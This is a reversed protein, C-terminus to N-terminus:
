FFFRTYRPTTDSRLQFILILSCDKMLNLALTFDSNVSQNTTTTESSLIYVIATSQYKPVFTLQIFTFVVVVAAVAAIAMIWVRQVFLEWLDKLSMSKTELSQNEM